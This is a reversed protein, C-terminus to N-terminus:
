AILVDLAHDVSLPGLSVMATAQDARRLGLHEGGHCAATLCATRQWGRGSVVELREKARGQVVNPDVRIAVRRGEGIVEISLREGHPVVDEDVGRGVIGGARLALRQERMLDSVHLLLATAPTVASRRSTAVNL